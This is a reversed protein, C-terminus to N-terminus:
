SSVSAIESHRPSSQTNLIRDINFKVASADFDTGDQFKVGQHLKFVIAKPDSTDWSDALDPQIKLDPGIAVLSDYLQYHIQRDVLLTSKLPDLNKMNADIAITLTGGRTVKGATASASTAAAATTATGGAPAAPSTAAASAAPAPANSPAKNGNSNGGCAALLAM